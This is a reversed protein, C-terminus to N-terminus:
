GSRIAFCGFSMLMVRETTELQAIDEDYIKKLTTRETQTLPDFKTVGPDANDFLHSIELRRRAPDLTPDLTEAIAIAEASPSRTRAPVASSIKWGKDVGTLTTLIAVQHPKYDEYRWVHLARAAPFMQLLRKALASWRPQIRLVTELFAPFGGPMPAWRLLQVYASPLFSVWSRVSLFLTVEAQKTLATIARLRNQANPYPVPHIADGTWGLLDEDSVVM